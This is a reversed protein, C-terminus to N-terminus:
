AATALPPKIIELRHIFDYKIIDNVFESLVFM